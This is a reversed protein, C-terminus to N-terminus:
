RPPRHPAASPPSTSGAQPESLCMTGFWRGALEPRAFTDIQQPTGHAMLLSANGSTLMAYGGIAVSAKHFFANGAMEVVCPLQMGGAEYAQSAALMGSDVYAALAEHTSAPLQVRQEGQADIVAHPEEVDARRNAPAFKDRAIRECTDLVAAFTERSHDAFRERETLAEVNLWDHLLFDLTQRM